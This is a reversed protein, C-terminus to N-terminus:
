YWKTHPSDLDKGGLIIKSLYKNVLDLKCTQIKTYMNVIYYKQSVFLEFDSEKWVM